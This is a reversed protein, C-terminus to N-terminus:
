ITKRRKLVEIILKTVEDPKGNGDVEEWDCYINKEVMEKYIARLKKQKDIDGEFMDLGEDHGEEKMKREFAIHPDVDLYIAFDPKEIHFDEAYSLLKDLTVQKMLYCQYAITTTFYGDALLLTNNLKKNEVIKESALTKDLLYSLVWSASNMKTEKQLAPHIVTEYFANHVPFEEGVVTVGYDKRLRESVEIRQYGKGAGDIADLVIFMFNTYSIIWCFISYINM